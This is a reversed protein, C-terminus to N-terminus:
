RSQRGPGPQTHSLRPIRMGRRTAKRTRAVSRAVAARAAVGTASPPVGVDRGTNLPPGAVRWGNRAFRGGVFGNMARRPTLLTWLSEHIDSAYQIRPGSPRLGSVNEEASPSRMQTVIVNSRSSRRIAVHV